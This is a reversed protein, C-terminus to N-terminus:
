IVVMVGQIKKVMWIGKPVVPFMTCFLLARSIYRYASKILRYLGIMALKPTNVDDSKWVYKITQVPILDLIIEWRIEKNLYIFTLSDQKKKQKKSAM